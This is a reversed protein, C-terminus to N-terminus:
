TERLFPLHRLTPYLLPSSTVLRRLPRNPRHRRHHVRRRDSDAPLAVLRPACAQTCVNVRDAAAGSSVQRWRVCHVCREGSSDFYLAVRWAQSGLTDALPSVLLGESQESGFAAPTGDRNVNKTAAQNTVVVQTLGGSFLCLTYRRKVRPRCPMRHSPAAKHNTRLNVQRPRLPPETRRQRPVDAAYVRESPRDSGPQGARLHFMRPLTPDAEARYPAGAAAASSKGCAPSSSSVEPHDAMWSPLTHLSATLHSQDLIRRYHIGQSAELAEAKSVAHPLPHHSSTLPSCASRLHRPSVSTTSLM